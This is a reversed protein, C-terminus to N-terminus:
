RLMKHLTERPTTSQCFLSKAALRLPNKITWQFFIGGPSFIKYKQPRINM